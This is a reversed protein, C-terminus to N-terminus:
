RMYKGHRAQSLFRTLRAADRVDASAYTAGDLLAALPGSTAGDLLAALPGSVEARRGTAIVCAAEASDVLARTFLSGIYGTAGTILVRPPAAEPQQSTTTM